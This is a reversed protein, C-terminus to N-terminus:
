LNEAIDGAVELYTVDAMSLDLDSHRLRVKEGSGDPWMNNSIPSCSAESDVLFDVKCGFYHATLFWGSGNDVTMM